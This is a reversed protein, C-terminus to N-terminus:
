LPYEPCKCQPPRPYESYESVKGELVASKAALGKFFLKKVLGGKEGSNIVQARVSPRPARSYERYTGM